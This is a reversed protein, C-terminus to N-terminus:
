PEVVEGSQQQQQRRDPIRIGAKEWIKLAARDERLLALKVALSAPGEVDAGGLNAGALVLTSVIEDHRQRAAQYIAYRNALLEHSPCWSRQRLLPSLHFRSDSVYYLATHGLSDRLHVLAGAKLLTDVSQTSGNIAAVHLPSRGSAPNIWNVIGGVIAHQRQDEGRAADTSLCYALGATDNAAAALHILWSLLAGETTVAEAATWAWPAGADAAGAEEDQAALRAIPAPAQISPRHDVRSPSTLRVVHALTGGIMELNADIGTTSGRAARPVRTLEGRLPAGILNRV